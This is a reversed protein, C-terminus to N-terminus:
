SPQQRPGHRSGRRFSAGLWQPCLQRVPRTHAPQASDLESLSAKTIQVRQRYRPRVTEDSFDLRNSGDLTLRALRLRLPPSLDKATSKEEAPPSPAREGAPLLKLGERTRRLTANLGHLATEGISIDRM